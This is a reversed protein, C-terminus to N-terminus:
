VAIVSSAVGRERPAVRGLKADVKDREFLLACPLGPTREVRPGRHLLFACPYSVVPPAPDVRGERRLPKLLKRRARRPSWPKTAVTAPLIAEVSKAGAESRWFWVVEGDAAAASTQRLKWTWRLGCSLTDHRRTRGETHPPILLLFCRESCVLLSINKVAYRSPYFRISNTRCIRNKTLTNKLANQLWTRRALHSFSGVPLDSARKEGRAALPVYPPCLRGQATGVM